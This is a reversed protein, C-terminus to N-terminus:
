EAAIQGEGYSSLDLDASMGGAALLASFRGGRAALDAYTGTEAVRGNELFVILDADRITSLRHAIIFTTRDRRLRDIAQRVKEETEVDLASTAEDLVLIPADKLVARAIAIRQREGGSLRNGREGAETEYGNTKQVIFDHAAAACAAEHVEEHSAAARGFRINAEISRDFLGADQYVTAIQGRLSARTVTAIDIGDILIAGAQPERVRQLLGILTSKGSGTPGVIAVTQGAKVDFSVGAVGAGTGPFRYSVERFSVDGRVKPLDVAGAPEARLDVADEMRFFDELKARAEFIQSFFATVQDLRGILLTAFGTFAILDGVRLEGREVLVAGILIVAIMSLTAAFRNLASALAWWDLVPNQAAILASTYERLLRAEEAVRGYGQVVSVNGVSDSVHSFVRHYHREVSTQGMRTRAMVMRNIAVYLVALVVLVTFMRRDMTFATPVLLVLSVATAMHQRMFELWLTFMAELARLLTHQSVSTGREQHWALPMSMLREYAETMVVGRRRHALRDASRAVLVFAVINFVGLGAWLAVSQGVGEKSTVADVIRGFAIPEIISVAALVVNATCILVVKGREAGLMRLTRWYIQILSM